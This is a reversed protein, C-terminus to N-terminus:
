SSEEGLSTWSGTGQRRREGKGGYTSLPKKEMKRRCRSVGGGLNHLLGALDGEETWVQGQRPMEGTAGWPVSHARGGERGKPECPSNEVTRKSVWSM